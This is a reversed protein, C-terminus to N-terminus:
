AEPAVNAFADVRDREGRSAALSRIGVVVYDDAFEARLDGSEDVLWTPAMRLPVTVVGPEEHTGLLRDWVPSTVGFNRMPAGFHHHLHNRRAWRGYRGRPPHTHTRRHAIEYGFYMTIMGVTFAAARRRGATAVALPYVVATTAAASAIKKSAPSFYTVDAHHGLHEVSPLGRGRMEHMVRRHLVYEVLSWSMAGAIAAVPRSRLIMAGADRLTLGSVLLGSRFPVLVRGM